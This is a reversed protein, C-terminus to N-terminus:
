YHGQIIPEVSQQPNVSLFIHGQEFFPRLIVTSGDLVQGSLSIEETFDIKDIEIKYHM